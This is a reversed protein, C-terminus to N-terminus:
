ASVVPAADGLRGALVSLPVDRKALRAAPPDADALRVPLAAEAGDENLHSYVQHDAALAWASGVRDGGPAPSSRRGRPQGTRRARALSPRRSDEIIASRKM